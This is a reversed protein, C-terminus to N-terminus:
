ESCSVWGLVAWGSLLRLRPPIPLVTGLRPRFLGSSGAPGSGPRPLSAGELRGQLRPWWLLGAGRCYSPWSVSCSIRLWSAAPVATPRGKSGAAVPGHYARVAPAKAAWGLGKVARREPERCPASWHCGLSNASPARPQLGAIRAVRGADVGHGGHWPRFLVPLLCLGTSARPRAARAHRSLGRHLTGARNGVPAPRLGEDEGAEEAGALEGGHNAGTLLTGACRGPIACNRGVEAPSISTKLVLGAGHPIRLPVRRGQQSPETPALPKGAASAWRLRDAGEADRQAKKVPCRLLAQIEQWQRM